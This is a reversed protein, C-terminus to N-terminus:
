DEIKEYQQYTPWVYTHDHMSMLIDNFILGYKMVADQITDFREGTKVEVIPMKTNQFRPSWFQQHFAIAFYRPRWMLNGVDCNSKDGDRHILSDFDKRESEPLFAKAVLQNVARTFIKGDKSLNVKLHGQANRSPRLIRGTKKNEIEGRSSVAYQPFVSVTRWEETM